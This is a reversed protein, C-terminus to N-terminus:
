EWPLVLVQRHVSECERFLGPSDAEVAGVHDTDQHTILIHHISKPDIGLWGMKEALRDYNDRILNEYEDLMLYNNTLCNRIFYRDRINEVQSIDTIKIAKM